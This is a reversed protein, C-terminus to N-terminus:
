LRTEGQAQCETHCPHKQLGLPASARSLSTEHATTAILFAACPLALPKLTKPEM